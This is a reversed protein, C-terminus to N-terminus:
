RRRTLLLYALLAGGGLLVPMLPFTVGYPQGPVPLTAYSGSTPILAVKKQGSEVQSIQGTIQEVNSAVNGVKGAIKGISDFLGGLGSYPYDGQNYM